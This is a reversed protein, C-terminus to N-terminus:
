EQGARKRGARLREAISVTGSHEVALREGYRKPALKSLYWKLTDVHLRSRDIADGITTERGTIASIKERKGEVPTAAIELAKDAM